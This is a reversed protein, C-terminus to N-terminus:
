GHVALRESVAGWVAAEVADMAASADIVACRDPEAEAIARFGDRLRQHFAM